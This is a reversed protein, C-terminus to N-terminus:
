ASERDFPYLSAFRYAASRVDNAAFLASVVALFDAGAEVLAAGNDPTIGGIAVRPVNFAASQRLLDVHTRPALPKTISAFFAGFSIYSAGARAADEGRQLSDHCSMGIIARPGLAARAADIEVDDGSLHVGDAAVALALEVDNDIILPVGFRHCLERLATSETQRRAKDETNDRYQLLRAGGALAQSVVELLDARPGDTVAYLGQGLSSSRTNLAHGRQCTTAPKLAEHKRMSSQTALIHGEGAIHLLGVM